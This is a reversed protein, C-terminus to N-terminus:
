WRSGPVVKLNDLINYTSMDMCPDLGIAKARKLFHKIDKVANRMSKFTVGNDKCNKLVTEMDEINFSSLMVDDPMYPKIRMKYQTEYRQLSHPDVRSGEEALSVKWAAFQKFAENFTLGTNIPKTSSTLMAEMAMEADSKKTFPKASVTKRDSVRQIIWKGNKPTIRLSKTM